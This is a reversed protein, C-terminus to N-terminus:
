CIRPLTSSRSVLMPIPTRRHVSLWRKAYQYRLETDKIYIYADVGNLIAALRDETSQLDWTKSDVQRRLRVALLLAVALLLGLGSIGWWVERPIKDRPAANMWHQLVEFYYSKPNAQWQLLQNEIVKILDGNRGKTTAFFLEAPQFLIPTAELAYRPAQLDGFFRNAVAADVRRAAVAEFAENFSRVPVIEAQVRFGSLLSELYDQQISGDLVAIRKGKLDLASSIGAQPHKYIQSWSLLAPTTHFDFIKARQENRAVDPMLDIEGAQLADLCAQWKCPVALLTWNHERAMNQLLDGFIGSPNGDPGAFIKPENQYVGVRVERPQAMAATAGLALVLVAGWIRPLLALGSAHHTPM